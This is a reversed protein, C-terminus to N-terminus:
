IPLLINDMKIVPIGILIMINIFPLNNLSQLSNLNSYDISNKIQERNLNEPIGSIDEIEDRM